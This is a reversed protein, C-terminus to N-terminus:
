LLFTYATVSTSPLSIESTGGFNCFSVLLSFSRIVFFVMWLWQHLVAVLCHLSVASNSTRRQLYSVRVSSERSSCRQQASGVYDKEFM